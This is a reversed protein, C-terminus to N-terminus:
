ENSNEISELASEFAQKIVDETRPLNPNNLCEELLPSKFIVNKGDISWQVVSLVRHMKGDGVELWKDLDIQVDDPLEITLKKAM